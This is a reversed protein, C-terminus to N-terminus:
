IESYNGQYLYSFSRSVNLHSKYPKCCGILFGTFCIHNFTPAPIVDLYCQAGSSHGLCSRSLTLRRWPHPAAPVSARQLDFTCGHSPQAAGGSRPVARCSRVSSLPTKGCSEQRSSGGANRWRVRPKHGKSGRRQGRQARKGSAKQLRSCRKGGGLFFTCAVEEACYPVLFQARKFVSRCRM